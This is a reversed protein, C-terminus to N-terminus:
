AQREVERDGAKEVSNIWQFLRMKKTLILGRRIRCAYKSRWRHKQKHVSRRAM